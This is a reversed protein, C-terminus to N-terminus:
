LNIEFSGAENPNTELLYLKDDEELVVNNKNPNDTFYNEIILQQGDKVKIILTNGSREM